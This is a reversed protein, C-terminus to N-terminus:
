VVENRLEYQTYAALQSHTFSALASHQNYLLSLDLILNCAIVANLMKEIESYNKKSTLAVRIVIKYNNYEVNISYGDDGCLIELKDKIMKTTYPSDNNWRSVIKFIRNEITDDDLAIIGLMDEFRKVGTEDCSYIFQNNKIKEGEGEIAQLESDETSMIQQIERYKQIFLPIYEILNVDRIM